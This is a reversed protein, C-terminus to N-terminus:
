ACRKLDHEPDQAVFWIHIALKARKLIWHVTVRRVGLRQAIESQRHGDLFLAIIEKQRVTLTHHVAQEFYPRIQDVFDALKWGIPIEEDPAEAKNVAEMFAPDTPIEEIPIVDARPILQELDACM